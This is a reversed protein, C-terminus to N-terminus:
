AGENLDAKVDRLRAASAVIRGNRWAEWRYEVTPNHLNGNRAFAVRVVVKRVEVGKYSSVKVCEGPVPITAM